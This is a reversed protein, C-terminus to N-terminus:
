YADKTDAVRWMYYSALSQYPRYPQFAKQILEADNKPCLSGGKGKGRLAFHKAIGKRVGLDGLPLVNSRELYFMMFMDCSWPGIGKIALLADRVDDDDATTLFDDSLRGTHAGQKDEETSDM